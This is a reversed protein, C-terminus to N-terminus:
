GVTGAERLAAIRADDYGLGKLVEDTHQGLIPSTFRPKGPTDSLKPGVGIQKVKGIPSDVEVVMGRALNHENTVVNEMELVPAACIDHQSMIAMWEDATKQKFIGKFREITAPWEDQNFQKPLLDETGIVTCLAAWFHSEISGISFWRGDSCEYTNYFPAAGNLLTAGPRIVSGGGFYGSFASTMLSLVGDSMGIDVNQGRGTKERAIIAVCIAFAATLGGGAFDAVLNVPIAPAQGPRGTVGLAGGVSIYNIDHGVLNSYPGTQGFGSISCCIIRPNIKALTDYDVGLRKVVGPRFGEIVVDASKVMEYFVAKAADEKLNLAISKKGRGLANYAAAHDAAESRRMGGSGGLKASSGPVAEVLTVDAGFDALLMSCHPGPALRSLDLVKIGALAMVM